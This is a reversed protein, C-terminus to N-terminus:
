RETAFCHTQNSFETLTSLQTTLCLLDFLFSLPSAFIQIFM